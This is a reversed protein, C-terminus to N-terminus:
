RGQEGAAPRQARTSRGAPQEARFQRIAATFQEPRSFLATHGADLPRVTAQPYAHRLEARQEASFAQDHLSELILLPGNWPRLWGPAPTYRAMFDVINRAGALLQAGTMETLEARLRALWFPASEPPATFWRMWLRWTFARKVAPPMVAFVVTFLRMTRLRVFHRTGAQALVLSDVRDPLDKTMAQAVYGGYSCGFVTVAHLGADELIAALGRLVKPLPHVAPYAPAIVRHDLALDTILRFYNDPRYTGGPLMLIASDGADSDLYRWPVGDVVLRRYPFRERFKAFEADLQASTATRPSIM